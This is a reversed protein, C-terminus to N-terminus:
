LARSVLILQSVGRELNSVTTISVGASLEQNRKTSM